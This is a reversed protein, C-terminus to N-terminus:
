TSRFTILYEPYAQADHYTVFISPTAENDVTSDFPRDVDSDKRPPPVNMTNNGLTYVGVLVRCLFMHKEGKTNPRSYADRASYEAERAFYVGKGYLTANKGCFSRNFAANIIKPVTKEDTGHFLQMEGHKLDGREKMDRQKAVYLRWLGRNEIREIQLIQVSSLSRRVMDEVKSFEDLDKQRDLKVRDQLPKGPARDKTWHSPVPTVTNARNLSENASTTAADVKVPLVVDGHVSTPVHMQIAGDNIAYETIPAPNGIQLGDTPSNPISTEL